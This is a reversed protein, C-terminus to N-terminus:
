GTVAFSDRVQECGAMVEDETDPVYQCQLNWQRTGEFVMVMDTVTEEGDVPSTFVAHFGQLGNVTTPMLEQLLEGGIQDLSGQLLGELEAKLQDQSAGSVDQLLSYETVIVASLGPESFFSETWESGGTETEFTAPGLPEWDSPYSFSVGHDAYATDEGSPEDDGTVAVYAGAGGVVAVLVAVAIWVGKKSPGPAAPPSTPVPGEPPVPMSPIQGPPQEQDSMVVAEWM